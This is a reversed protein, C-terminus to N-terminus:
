LSRSEATLPESVTVASTATTVQTACSSLAANIDTINQASITNTSVTAMVAQAVAVQVGITGLAPTVAAVMVQRALIRADREAGTPSMIKGM